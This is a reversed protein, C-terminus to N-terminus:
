SPNIRSSPSFSNSRLRKPSDWFSIVNISGWIRINSVQAQSVKSRAPQSRWESRLLGVPTKMPACTGETALQRGMRPAEANSTVPMLRAM